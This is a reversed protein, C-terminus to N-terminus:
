FTEIRCMNENVGCGSYMNPIRGIVTIGRLGWKEQQHKSQTMKYLKGQGSSAMSVFWSAPYLETSTVGM